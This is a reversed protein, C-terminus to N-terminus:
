KTSLSPFFISVFRDADTIKLCVYMREMDSASPRQTGNIIRSSKNQSWGIAKAFESISHYVSFVAGRITNEEM